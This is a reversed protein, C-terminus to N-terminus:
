QLFLSIFDNKSLNLIYDSINDPLAKNLEEPNLKVGKMREILESIDRLMFFDGMLNLNKLTNNKIECKAEINGVRDFRKRFTKTFKPNNGYIFDDSLYEREIETIIKLDDNNIHYSSDCLEKRFFDKLQEIDCDVYDKLLTIHQRVSEVGKTQLKESDPTIAKTMFVMNTDYLLTGHVVCRKPLHYFANGSVKRGNILIDNRISPKADVGLKRLALVIRNIYKYFTFGVFEATTIYSFMINNMDAYVCGGGSKRRYMKIGHMKCFNVNVENEILQNRGFIVSPTVQWMFFCESEQTMHRAVFEELALYFSLQRDTNENIEIYKMIFSSPIPPM